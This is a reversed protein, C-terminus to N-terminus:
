KEEKRNRPLLMGERRWVSIKKLLMSRPCEIGAASLREIIKEALAEQKLNADEAKALKLAHREWKQEAEKRRAEASRTANDRARKQKIRRVLAEPTDGEILDLAIDIPEEAILGILYAAYIAYLAAERVENTSKSPDDLEDLASAFMDRIRTRKIAGHETLGPSAIARNARDLILPRAWWNALALTRLAQEEPTLGDFKPL